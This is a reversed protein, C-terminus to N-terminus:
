PLCIVVSQLSAHFAGNGKQNEAESSYGDGGQGRLVHLL